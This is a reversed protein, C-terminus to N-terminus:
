QVRCYVKKQLPLLRIIYYKDKVYSNDLMGDVLFHLQWRHRFKLLYVTHPIQTRRVHRKAHIDTHTCTHAHARPRTHTRACTNTCGCTPPLPLINHSYLHSLYASFSFNIRRIYIVNEKIKHM